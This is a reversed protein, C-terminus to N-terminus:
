TMSSWGSSGCACTSGWRPSDKSSRAFAAEGERIANEADRINSFPIESTDPSNLAELAARTLNSDDGNQQSKLLVKLARERLRKRESPDKAASSTVYLTFGLRSLVVPDNPYKEAAKELLPLADGYKSDEFLKIAREREPDNSQARSRANAGSAFVIIILLSVVVAHRRRSAPSLKLM